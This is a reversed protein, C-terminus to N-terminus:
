AAVQVTAVAMRDAIIEPNRTIVVVEFPGGQAHHARANFQDDFPKIQTFELRNGCLSEIEILIRGIRDHSANEGSILLSFSGNTQHFCYHLECRAADEVLAIMAGLANIYGARAIIAELRENLDKTTERVLTYALPPRSKDPNYTM